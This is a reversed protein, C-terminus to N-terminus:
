AAMDAWSNIIERMEILPVNLIEAARSVTIEGKELARRVLSSLYDEVFDPKELGFPEKHSDLSQGYKDKYICRFRATLRGYDADEAEAMRRLVVLYSVGFFRKIHLVREVFGLGYSEELKEKFAQRPMLFYGAFSNADTEEKNNEATKSPDYAEPHLLLHGLEHAVTFIQREITVDEGSNVIIAPGGDSVSISFGFFQKLDFKLTRIKIGAKEMLGVIDCIPEDVKLGLAERALEAAKLPQDHKLSSIKEFVPELQYKREDRVVSQLFNFNKLWYATDILYEQKVAKEKETKITNSRFRVTNLKPPEALLDVIQVNLADAIAQLNSVRPEKTKRKEIDIFAQRSIGAAKAAATQSLGRSARIRKINISIAQEQKM